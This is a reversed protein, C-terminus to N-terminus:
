HKLAASLLKILKIVRMIWRNKEGNLLIRTTNSNNNKTSNTFLMKTTATGVVDLGSEEWIVGVLGSEMCPSWVTVVKAPTM